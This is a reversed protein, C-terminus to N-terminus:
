PTKGDDHEQPCAALEAMRSFKPKEIPLEETELAKLYDALDLLFAEMISFFTKSRAEDDNM